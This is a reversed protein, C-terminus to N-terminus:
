GVGGRRESWQLLQEGIRRRIQIREELSLFATEIANAQLQLIELMSIEPCLRCLFKLNETLGARSIGINDTNATVLAGARLYKLLPYEPCGEMPNFGKIQYNAFPCMEIGIRRDVVARFLDPADFLNLAHGLRRSKLRFVAQWISEVEDNEGAHATVAVGTRHAIDFDTEFYMPRTSVDEFGALDVGVVRCRPSETQRFPQHATVALALHRSIDSLDGDRKRTVIIILNVQVFFSGDEQAKKMCREFVQQMHQLVTLATRDKDPFAYNNPSCRVEAYVVREKQFHAYLLEIHKELCGPDKLLKSGTADGLSRYDNLPIPKEPHPWAAPFDPAALARLEQPWEAAARVEHLLPGDTAFGGMHCHLEIKPLQEFLGSGLWASAPSRLSELLEADFRALVPFPLEQLTEAHGALQDVQLLQRRIFAMKQPAARLAELQLLISSRGPEAGMEIVKVLDEDFGKRIDAITEPHRNYVERFQEAFVHFVRRAGLFHAAQLLGSSMTKYGGSICVDPLMREGSVPGDAGTGHTLYFGILSEMFREHDEQSSLEGFDPVQIIEVDLDAFERDALRARLWKVKDPINSTTICRLRAYRDRLRGSPGAILAELVIAPSTGLSCLLTHPM